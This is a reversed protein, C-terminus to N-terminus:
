NRPETRQALLQISSANELTEKRVARQFSEYYALEGQLQRIERDRKALESALWERDSRRAESLIRSYDIEQAQVVAPSPAPAAVSVPAPVPSLAVLVSIILAAASAALPVAVRWDLVPWWSRPVPPAFVIHRPVDLEPSQRLALHTKEFKEVRQRCEACEAAHQRADDMESAPLEEYFFEAVKDDLHAM